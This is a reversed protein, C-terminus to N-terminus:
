LGYWTPPFLLRWLRLMTYISCPTHKDIICMCEGANMSGAAIVLYPDAAKTSFGFAFLGPPLGREALYYFFEKM